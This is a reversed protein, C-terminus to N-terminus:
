LLASLRTPRWHSTVSVSQEALRGKNNGEVVRRDLGAVALIRITVAVLVRDPSQSPRPESSGLERGRERIRGARPRRREAIAHHRRRSLPPAETHLHLKAGVPRRAAPDAAGDTLTPGTLLHWSVVQDPVDSQGVGLDDRARVGWVAGLASGADVGLGFAAEYIAPTFSSPHTTWISSEIRATLTEGVVGLRNPEFTSAWPRRKSARRLRSCRAPVRPLHCAWSPSGHSGPRAGLLTTAGPGGAPM